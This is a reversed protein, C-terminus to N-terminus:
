YGNKNGRKKINYEALRREISRIGCNFYSACEKKTKGLIIYQHVLEDKSIFYKTNCLEPKHLGYGKVLMRINAVCCGFYEACEKQTKDLINYQYNLEQKSINYKTHAKSLKDHDIYRPKRSAAILQKSKKINYKVLNRVITMHSCGFYEACQDITKNLNLYQDELLHKDLVWKTHAISLRLKSEPLATYHEGGSTRNFGLSRDTTNFLKILAQEKMCAQEKTLNEFLIEHRFAEWGYKQIARYFYSQSKYGCGNKGWRKEPFSYGTIGIYKRGDNKLIHWYVFYKKSIDNM